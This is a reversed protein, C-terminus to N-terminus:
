VQTITIKKTMNGLQIYVYGTRSSSSANKKCRVTIRNGSQNVELWSSYNNPVTAKVTGCGTTVTFTKNSGTKPFTLSSPVGTISNADQTITVVRTITEGTALTKTFKLTFSRKSATYNPEVNIYYTYNDFLIDFWEAGNGRITAICPYNSRITKTGGAVNFNVSSVNSSGGSSIIFANQTLYLEYMNSGKTFVISGSRTSTSTNAKVTAVYYDANSTNVSIWSPLTDRKLASGNKGGTIYIKITYGDPTLTYTTRSRTGLPYLKVSIDADVVSIMGFLMCFVLAISVFIRSYRISRTM